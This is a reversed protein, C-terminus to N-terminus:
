RGKTLQILMTAAERARPDESDANRWYQACRRLHEEAAGFDKTRFFYRGLALDVDPWMQRTWFGANRISRVFAVVTEGRRGLLNRYLGLAATDGKMETARAIGWQALLFIPDGGHVRAIDRFENIAGSPSHGRLKMEGSVLHLYDKQRKLFYPDASRATEIRLLTRRADASRGNRGYSAGILPLEFYPSRCLEEAQKMQNLYASWNSSESALEGLLYHFYAEERPRRESRCLAIAEVCQNRADRLRGQFQCLSALQMYSTLKQGVDAVSVVAALTREASDLEGAMWQAQATYGDTTYYTPRINKSRRYYQQGGVGDGSLALAFGWNDFISAAYSISDLALSRKLAEIAAPTNGDYMKLWGLISFGEADNPYRVVLQQISEFARPFDLEFSPGYYITLILCRERDTVRGILPLVRRHYSVAASDNGLKRLIYSLESIAMTFSSDIAIAREELLSADKYKGQSELAMARTHFELAQLSSTTAGELPKATASIQDLSEGLHERIDKSLADMEAYVQEVHPAQRHLLDLLEGTGANIIRCMLAYSTGVPSISGAVVIQAGERRALTLSTSEDLRHDPPLEMRQLAEPIRDSPFLNLHPSQRLAVKMAGTLSHNFVSDGTQNEFDAVVVYRSPEFHFPPPGVRTLAPWLLWSLLVVGGLISPVVYRRPFAFRRSVSAPPTSVLPGGAQYSQLDGILEAASQYRRDPDKQLLRSVIGNLVPPIGPRLASLPTPDLHLISYFIAPEYAEAFPRVGGLMEYLVVGLSFLDTRQDTKLGQVQEPSMYAATGAMRGSKSSHADSTLKALGFDVIKLVGEETVLLNAPKIDRHVIGAEHARRLGNGIQLTNKVAEDIDLPGREIKEKLTEGPYYAMCIFSRGDDTEDVEHVVAINPHDLASAAQAEHIFRRKADEDSTMETPLFKLAVPRHLKTDEAKYVVGMGGEGLKELIKYHSITQGIV